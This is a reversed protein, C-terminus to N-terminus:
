PARRAFLYATLAEAEGVGALKRLDLRYSVAGTSSRTFVQTNVPDSMVVLSSGNNLTKVSFHGTFITAETVGVIEQIRYDGDMPGDTSTASQPGSGTLTLHPMGGTVGALNVQPGHVYTSSNITLGNTTTQGSKAAGTAADNNVVGTGALALAAQIQSLATDQNNEQSEVAECVSQWWRQLQEPTYTTPLRPLRFAM